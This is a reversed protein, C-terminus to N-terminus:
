GVEACLWARAMVLVGKLALESAGERILKDANFLGTHM